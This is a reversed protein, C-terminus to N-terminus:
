PAMCTATDLAHSFTEYQWVVKTEVAARRSKGIVARSIDAIWKDGFKQPRLIHEAKRRQNGKRRTNAWQCTACYPNCTAHNMLHSISLVEAKPRRRQKSSHSVKFREEDDTELMVDDVHPGLPPPVGEADAAPAASM